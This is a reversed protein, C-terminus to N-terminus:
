IIEPEQELTVGFKDKVTKIIEDRAEILDEFSAGGTNTLVLANKDYVSIKKLTKGKLGVKEILWGAPIKMHLNDDVPFLKIDPFDIKLRDVTEIDVIPNKFFSGVNPIEKPNPLKNNRIEILAGRIEKPTPNAINKEGFYKITDPYQPVKPALKSLRYSVSTIIYKGKAENKFISDRYGFKCEKNSLSKSEGKEIDFIKVEIITDKVESGYAGVNQVPTAGVTGPIASLAELGSYGLEVTKKVIEDWKEGAGVEIDVSSEDERIIKFGLIEMKLALIDIIGDCFIVNSGGGLIFIPVNKEKAFNCAEKLDEENEIKTFYRFKGGINFTSYNKIDVYEQIKM